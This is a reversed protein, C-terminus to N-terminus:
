SRAEAATFKWASKLGVGLVPIFAAFVWFGAAKAAAISIGDALGAMNAAIGVAATGIAYGIRQVTSASASALSRDAPASFRVLRQVIAPWCLGFGGGQLLGCVVMGALSGSPVALAFGASGVAVAAAGGRILGADAAPTASSVALTALSWAIAEGALIYGTVLPHTGFLIKLLLPGYAWFGTTAVSLSLVLLLGSGVPHQFDLLQAPLLRNVARRDLRAALVLLGSGLVCIAAGWLVHNLAGAEAILLTAASLVLLPVLPWPTDPQRPAAPFSWRAWAGLVVSQAALIWFVSRWAHSAAFAGGLLPGLLSGMGWIAAIIGFMRPFLKPPFWAEVAVYCLTLLMGGGMGQVLRGLILAAMNPALAGLVCGGCYVACAGVFLGRIGFQACLAATAAGAIITGVEYLSITWNIYTIGHLDAVIDPAITATILTDASHLWVGFCLLLIRGTLGSSALTDNRADIANVIWSERNCLDPL